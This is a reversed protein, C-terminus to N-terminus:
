RFPTSFKITSSFKHPLHPPPLQRCLGVWSARGKVPVVTWNRRKMGQRTGGAIVSCFTSWLTVNKVEQWLVRCAFVHMCRAINGACRWSKEGSSCASLIEGAAAAESMFPRSHVKKNELWHLCPRDSDCLNRPVRTLRPLPIMPGAQRRGQSSDMGGAPNLPTCPTYGAITPASTDILLQRWWWGSEGWAKDEWDSINIIWKIESWFM